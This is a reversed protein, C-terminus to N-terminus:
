KETMMLAYQQYLKLQGYDWWYVGQGVDVPGFVGLSATSKDEHFKKMMLAIRDFHAGAVDNTVGKQSMLQLYPAKELTMPM